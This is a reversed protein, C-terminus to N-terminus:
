SDSKDKKVLKLLDEKPYTNFVDFQVPYTDSIVEALSLIDQHVTAWKLRESLLEINQLKEELVFGEEFFIKKALPEVEKQSKTKVLIQLFAGGKENLLYEFGIRTKVHAKAIWIDRIEISM